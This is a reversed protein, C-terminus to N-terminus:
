ALGKHSESAKGFADVVLYDCFIIGFYQFNTAQRLEEAIHVLRATTLGYYSDHPNQWGLGRHENRM